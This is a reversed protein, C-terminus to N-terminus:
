DPDVGPPMWPLLMGVASMRKERTNVGGPAETVSFFRRPRPWVADIRPPHDARTTGTLAGHNNAGSWDPEPDATGFLPAYYKSRIPNTKARVIELEAPTMAYPWLGVNAIDGTFYRFYEGAERNDHAAGISLPDDTDTKLDNAGTAAGVVETLLPDTAAGYYFKANGSKAYTGAIFHWVGDGANMAGPGAVYQTSYDAFVVRVATDSTSNFQFVYQVYPSAAGYNVTKSILAAYSAQAGVRRFWCAVTMANALETDLEPARAVVIKDSTGNFNRAM